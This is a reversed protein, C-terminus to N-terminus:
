DVVLPGKSKGGGSKKPTPAREWETVKWEDRVAESSRYHCHVYADDDYGGPCTFTGM